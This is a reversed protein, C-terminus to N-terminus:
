RNLIQRFEELRVVRLPPFAIQRFVNFHRDNSVLYDANTSIALDSFKNDDPDEIVLDWHFAPDVFEASPANLLVDMVVNATSASYFDTLQEFYENLIETSVLWTFQGDQFARYLWYEPNRPPISLLLCNTDIVVKM